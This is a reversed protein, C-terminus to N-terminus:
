APDVLVKLTGRRAAHAMAEAARALPYRAVVLTTPDFAGSALDRVARRMDGCRSGV